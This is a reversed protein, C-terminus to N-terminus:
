WPFPEGVPQAPPMPRNAWEVWGLATALSQRFEEPAVTFKAQLAKLQEVSLFCGYALKFVGGSGDPDVYWAGGDKIARADETVAINHAISPHALHFSAM